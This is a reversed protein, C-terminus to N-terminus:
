QSTSKVRKPFTEHGEFAPIRVAVSDSESKGTSPVLLDGTQSLLSQRLLLDLPKMWAKNAIGGM